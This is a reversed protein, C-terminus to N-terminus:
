ITTRELRKLPIDVSEEAEEKKTEAKGLFYAWIADNPPGDVITLLQGLFPSRQSLDALTEVDAICLGSVPPTESLNNPPPTTLSFMAIEEISSRVARIHEAMRYPGNLFIIISHHHVNKDSAWNKLFQGVTRGSEGMLDRILACAVESFTFGVKPILTVPEAHYVALATPAPSEILYKQLFGQTDVTSM